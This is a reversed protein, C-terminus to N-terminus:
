TVSIETGVLDEHALSASIRAFVEDRTQNRAEYDRLLWSFRYKITKADGKQTLEKVSVGYNAARQQDEELARQIVALVQGADKQTNVAVNL